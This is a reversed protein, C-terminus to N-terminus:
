RNIISLDTAKLTNISSHLRVLTLKLVNEDGGLLFETGM